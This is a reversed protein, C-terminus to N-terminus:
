KLLLVNLGKFQKFAKDTTILRYGGAVAFAALYADMWLKPSRSPVAAFHRWHEHLRAPEQAFCIRGDSLWTEQVNWAETNRLASLGLPGFLADTTLLRLLGQQTARCFAISVAEEAGDLWGMALAHHHHHALSLALWINLDPLTRM